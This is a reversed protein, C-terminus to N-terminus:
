GAEVTRAFFKAILPRKDGVFISCRAEENNYQIGAGTKQPKPSPDIAQFV